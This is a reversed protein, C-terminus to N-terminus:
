KMDRIRVEINSGKLLETLKSTDTNGFHYPYLIKPQFSKAAAAVMKPTMTYPLNMPLFAVEINNLNKMEPINETDGAIYVSTGDITLVYGNGVGKPHWPKGAERMHVLNYAPIVNIYGWSTKKEDGNALFQVDKFNALGDKCVSPAIIATNNKLIPSIAGSDLHDGHDHTILIYDAKPLTEYNGVKTWPDIHIITGQYDIYLTGHGLLHLTFSSNKTKIIDQASVLTTAMLLAFLLLKKIM